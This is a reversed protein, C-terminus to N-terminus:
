RVAYPARRRHENESWTERIRRCEEAIEAPTPLYHPRDGRHSGDLPDCADGVPVEGTASAPATVEITLETAM